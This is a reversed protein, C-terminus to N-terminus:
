QSRHGAEVPLPIWRTVLEWYLLKCWERMVYPRMSLWASLEAPPKAGTVSWDYQPLLATFISLARRTHFDSTVILVRKAGLKSLCRDADATETRTSNATTRCVRVSSSFRPATTSVYREVLDAETAGWWSDSADADIVMTGAYGAALLRLASHYRLADEDGSLVLIADSPRANNMSLLPDSVLLAALTALLGVLVGLLRALRRILWTPSGKYGPQQGAVRLPEERVVFRTRGLARGWSKHM